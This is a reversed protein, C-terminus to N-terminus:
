RYRSLRRDLLLSAAFAGCCAAVGALIEGRLGAVIESNVILEGFAAWCMTLAVICVIGSLVIATGALWIELLSKAPRLVGSEEAVRVAFDAPLPVPEEIDKLRRDLDLYEEVQPRAAPPVMEELEKPSLGVLEHLKEQIEDDSWTTM